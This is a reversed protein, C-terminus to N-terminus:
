LIQQLEKGVAHQITQVVTKRTMMQVTQSLQSATVIRSIGGGAQAIEKIESAGLEGLESSDILGIVNVIIGEAKAQAAAIVPSVGVNSCGDTMLIIQKM